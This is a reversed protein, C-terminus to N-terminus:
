AARVVAAARTWRSAVSPPPEHSDDALRDTSSTLHIHISILFSTWGPGLGSCWSSVDPPFGNQAMKPPGFHALKRPNGRLNRGAEGSEPNEPM